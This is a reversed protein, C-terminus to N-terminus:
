KKIFLELKDGVKIHNKEFWGLRVELAYQAPRSSEYTEFHTQMESKAANMNKVEILRKQKSFYGISLDVFTNKMWFSLPQEEKFIFLMGENESLSRKYMLGYSSKEPTDAIEVVVTKSAIKITAKAFQPREAAM